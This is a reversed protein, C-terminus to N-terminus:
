NETANTCFRFAIGFEMMFEIM